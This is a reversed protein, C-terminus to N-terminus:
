IAAPLKIRYVHYVLSGPQVLKTDPLAAGSIMLRPGLNFVQSGRDPESDIVARLQFRAEGLQLTDGVKLGLRQILAAEAVAGYRGQADQKLAEALPMA